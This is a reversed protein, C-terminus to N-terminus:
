IRIYYVAGVTLGTLNFPSATTANSGAAQCNFATQSGCTGNNLIQIYTSNYSISSNNDTATFNITATMSGATFKYWVGYPTASTAGTCSGAPAATTANQLDGNSCGIQTLDVAAACNAQANLLSPISLVLLAAVLARFSLTAKM